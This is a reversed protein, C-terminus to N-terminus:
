PWRHQLFTNRFAFKLHVCRMGQKLPASENGAIVTLLFGYDGSGNITGSGRCQARTGSVIPWDYRTSRFNIDAM